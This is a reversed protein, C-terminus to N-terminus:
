FIFINITKWNRKSNRYNKEKAEVVNDIGVIEALEPDGLKAIENRFYNSKIGAKISINILNHIYNSLDLTKQEKLLLEEFYVEFKENFEKESIRRGEEKEFKQKLEVRKNIKTNEKRKELISLYYFNKMVM